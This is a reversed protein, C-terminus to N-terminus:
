SLERSLEVPHLDISAPARVRRSPEHQSPHGLNLLASIRTIRHPEPWPTDACESRQDLVGSKFEDPQHHVAACLIPPVSPLLMHPRLKAVEIRGRFVMGATTAAGGSDDGSM